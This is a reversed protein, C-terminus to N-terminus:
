GNTGIFSIWRAKAKLSYNKLRIKNILTLIPNGDVWWMREMIAKADSEDVQCFPSVWDIEKSVVVPLGVSVMDATVINFTESMSVQMGIDMRTLLELFHDHEMWPHEVLEANETELFLSRLNKLANEGQTEVRTHNIHFRLPVGISRAYGIAAIAQTLQNKMPRIAGFCAVDLYNGAGGNWKMHSGPYINPLYIAKGLAIRLAKAAKLSNSVVGVDLEQYEALWKMAVGEASLFPINSHLHCYWKVYPHLHKLVRIKSPVVWLAELIVMDPKYFTVWRDIDNNDIVEITLAHIKGTSIAESVFRASNYLGSSKKLGSSFGYESGRKCVFLVKKRSQM